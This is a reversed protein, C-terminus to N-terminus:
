YDEVLTRSRALERRYLWPDLGGGLQAFSEGRRQIERARGIVLSAFSEDRTPPHDPVIACGAVAAAFSSPGYTVAAFLQGRRNGEVIEFLTLEPVTDHRTVVSSTVTVRGLATYKPLAGGIDTALRLGTPKAPISAASEWYVNPDPPWATPELAIDALTVYADPDHRGLCRDDCAPLLGAVLHDLSTRAILAASAGDIEGAASIWKAPWGSFLEWDPVDALANVVKCAAPLANLLHRRAHVGAM